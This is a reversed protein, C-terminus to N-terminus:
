WENNKEKENLLKVKVNHIKDNHYISASFLGTWSDIVIWVIPWLEMYTVDIYSPISNGFHTHWFAVIDLGRKETEIILNYLQEPDIEFRSRSHLINEGIWLEEVIAKDSELKGILAGAAEEDRGHEKAYKIM